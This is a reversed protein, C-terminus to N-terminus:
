QLYKKFHYTFDVYCFEPFNKLQIRWFWVINIGESWKTSRGHLGGYQWFHCNENAFRVKANMLFITFMCNHERIGLKKIFASALIRRNIRKQGVTTMKTRNMAGCATSEACTPKNWISFYQERQPMREGTYM